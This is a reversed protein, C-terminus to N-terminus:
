GALRLSWGLYVTIDPSAESLGVSAAASVTRGISPLYSFGLGASLPADMTEVMASAGTLSAMLATRGNSFSRSVSVGYIVGSGLELDDLDGFSWYSLNAFLLAADSGLVLSAGGGVDWAGTGVGSEVSRLPPKASLDLSLSRVSGLGSYLEVSGGLMPDGVQMEYSDRFVVTTSDPDTSQGSGMGMGGGRGGRTGIPERGERRGVASGNEGGTPLPQGAVFSVIGSNQVIVPLSATLSVPGARLSLGNSLWFSSTAETFVYSGRSYSVSGNYTLTQAAIAHATAAALVLVRVAAGVGASALSRGM